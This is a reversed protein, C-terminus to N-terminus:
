ADDTLDDLRSQEIKARQRLFKGAISQPVAWVRRVLRRNGVRIEIRRSYLGAERMAAALSISDTREELTFKLCRRFDPLSIFVKGDKIFPMRQPMADEPHESPEWMDLYQEIWATVLEVESTGEGLDEDECLSRLLRSVKLWKGKPMYDPRIGTSDCLAHIFARQEILNSIHGLSLRRGGAVLYYRGGKATQYRILKEIEVGLYNSLTQYINDDDKNMTQLEDLAMTQAAARRASEITKAYYGLRLKLDDGNTRRSAILLDVIEQDTWDAMAAYVAMSMDWGSPTRDNIASQHMFSEHFRPINISLAQFKGFPPEADPDLIIGKAIEMDFLPQTFDPLSEQAFPYFDELSGARWNNMEEITARIRHSSKCNLTGPMRMVRSLDFVSDIGWGHRAAKAQLLKTWQQSLWKVERQEELTEIMWPEKFLWWGHYGHGTFTIISAPLPMEHLLQLADEQSPLNSRQHGGAKFDVDCCFGVLAAIEGETCRKYAGLDANSLGAGVYIDQESRKSVYEIAKSIDQFWASRHDRLSWILIYHTEQKFEFLAEIFQRIDDSM